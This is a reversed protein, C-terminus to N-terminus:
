WWEDQQHKYKCCTSAILALFLVAVCATIFAGAQWDVRGISDPVEELCKKELSLKVLVHVHPWM